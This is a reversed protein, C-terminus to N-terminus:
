AKAEPASPEASTTPTPPDEAKTIALRAAEHIDREFPMLAFPAIDLMAKLAHVEARCATLQRAKAEAESIPLYENM